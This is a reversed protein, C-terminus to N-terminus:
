QQVARQWKRLTRLELCVKYGEDFAIRRSRYGVNSHAIPVPKGREHIEWKYSTLQRRRYIIEVWLEGTDEAWM